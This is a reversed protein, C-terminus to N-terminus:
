FYIGCINVGKLANVTEDKMVYDKKIDVIELM